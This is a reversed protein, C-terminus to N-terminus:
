CLKLWFYVLISVNGSFSPNVSFAMLGVTRDVKKM